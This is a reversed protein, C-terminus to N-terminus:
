SPLALVVRFGASDLREDPRRRYRYAARCFWGYYYWAGGRLVRREGEAPGQPDREPGHRYYNDDFWDQCWEWVNGHLDHLGWANAAYAGVRSTRELYPGNVGARGYPYYGNFNAQRSSLSDGYHFVTTM